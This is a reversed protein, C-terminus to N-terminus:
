LNRAASSREAKSRVFWLLTHLAFFGLMGGLLLNMFVASAHLAPYAKADHADAHPSYTVFSASADNHCKGCTQVLNARAVTSKPDSAPLIDHARHCDSCHAAEVYGLASIQAHFTDRYTGYKEQHCSGCNASSKLQFSAERIDAIHHATHCNTCVPARGNGGQLAKGHVGAFYAQEIGQHCAGCTAPVNARSALSKPNKPDLIDHAGHCSSCTASVLLGDKTLASGHISDAYEAYVDPQGHQQASKKDGHCAGCARPLNLPYVPSQPDKVDVIAHIDGHCTECPQPGAGAHVSSALAAVADSHCAGCNVKAVQDPHPFGKIDRHCGTCGLDAHISAHFPAGKEDHCQLCLADRVPAACLTAAGLMM